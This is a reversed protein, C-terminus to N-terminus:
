KYEITVEKGNIQYNMPSLKSVLGLINELSENTIVLNYLRNNPDNNKLDIDVRYWASLKKFLQEATLDRIVLEPKTWISVDTM